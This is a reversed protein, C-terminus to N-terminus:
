KNNIIKNAVKDITNLINGNYKKNESNIFNDSWNYISQELNNLAKILIKKDTKTLQMTEKPQNTKKAM